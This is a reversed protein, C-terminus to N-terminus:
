YWCNSSNMSSLWFIWILLEFAIISIFMLKNIEIFVNTTNIDIFIYLYWNNPQYNFLKKIDVLMRFTNSFCGVSGLLYKLPMVVVFVSWSSSSRSLFTQFVLNWFLTIVGTFTPWTHRFEFKIQIVDLCIWVGFTLDIDWFSASFFGSFQIKAFPLLEQLLLHLTIFGLKIQIIDHCIWIGFKFDLIEFSLLSFDSVSFKLLPCYSRYFYTLLSSVFVQDTYYWSLNM